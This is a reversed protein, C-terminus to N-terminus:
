RIRAYEAQAQKLVPIDRDADKWLTLFDEYATKAKTKDESMALARGLQLRALAGIPDSVVIARHDLIKQFEAAAEAGQQAALYALGRVYVPYLAGFSADFWSPPAGLEYPAATRLLEIAKASENHNLALLARLGPMYSLRVATDEPFRKALDDALTQSQSSDGSLALAFAAGYEVDRSKSSELVAKAGQKAERINGLFADWLTAGIEFLAAREPQAAQRALDAARRTMSKAQQRHGSYALGFGQYYDVWDEADPKGQSLAVVREMGAKDGKLVALMYNQALLEPIELKHESMRRCTAEAEELRDVFQYATALTVYGFPVDPDLAIARKAQEIAKEYKGFFPYVTGSLLGPPEYERPYTQGWLEFTEQAKELNGTVQQDYTTTILFKEADSARDRLQYAKTTNEASLESEGIEGYIRGLYAYAIAFKPDIELTRKFFPLASLDGTSHLIKFATSYTKLAELSPTTAEALPTSHKEVTALSEGVRTRFKSAIQSLANLVDEKRGAQVQEEDLVDGTRCNKARLGLVYQTGLNAISGDLVAAGATRECVEKALEPTLRADAPQGMLRMAKQIHQDSVLSLFPSQELQVALGQRLTGDFVPDGTKNTFDALVITDRDTLQPKGHLARPFYFYGAAFVALVVAAAPAIVKARIANAARWSIPAKTSADTAALATSLDRVIESASQYRKAPEKELARSVIRDIEPALEPRLERLRPPSNHVIAHMVQLHGDGTFPPRGALMEYLVAGLSWLDTRSDLTKGSAQEPSMYLPTGKTSGDVSATADTSKALGFDIIRTVGDKAVIVNGPKIDRHLIGREHAKALGSAIQRAIHLAEAVPLGADTNEAAIRARLTVGEHFAMAIFLDGGPAEDIDHIVVINPHDLTSAARAEEKLRRKLEDNQRLHPPLFKLAVLRNLKPDFAKYVVGMGGAGLMELVKYHSITQGALQTVTSEESELLEAAPSDLFSGAQQDSALLSRVERELGEDGACAQRLFGEREARPHELAAHLLSDIRKWRESDM